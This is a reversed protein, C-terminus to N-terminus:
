KNKITLRLLNILEDITNDDTKSTPTTLHQGFIVKALELRVKDKESLKEAPIDPIDKLYNPITRIKLSLDQLKFYHEERKSAEKIIYIAPILFM